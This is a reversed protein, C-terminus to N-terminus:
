NWDAEQSLFGGISVSFPVTLMYMYFLLVFFIHFIDSEYISFIVYFPFPHWLLCVISHMCASEYRSLTTSWAGRTHM